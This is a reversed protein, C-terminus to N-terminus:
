DIINGMSLTQIIKVMADNTINFCFTTTHIANFIFRKSAIM